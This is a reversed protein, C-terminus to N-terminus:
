PTNAISGQRVSTARHLQQLPAPPQKSTQVSPRAAARLGIDSRPKSLTPQTPDPILTGCRAKHIFLGGQPRADFYRIGHVWGNHKGELGEQLELGIWTGGSFHVTGVYGM